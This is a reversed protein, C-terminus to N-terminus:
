EDTQAPFAPGHELSIRLAALDRLSGAIYRYSRRTFPDAVSGAKADIEDALRLCTEVRRMM